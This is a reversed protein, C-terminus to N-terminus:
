TAVFYPGCFVRVDNISMVEQERLTIKDPPIMTDDFIIVLQIDHGHNFLVKMWCVM